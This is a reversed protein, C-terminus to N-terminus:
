LRVGRCLADIDGVDCLALPDRPAPDHPQIVRQWWGVDHWSGLKFGVKRYIGVREFGAAEHLAVSGENPLTIGACANVFGQAALIRFLSEYLARGVGSRRGDRHVYIATDVSWRYAARSRHQSAYAYGAIAGDRECVLWPYARLTDTIRAAIGAADPPEVEFSIATAEVIPAYIAAIAPADDSTALRITDM